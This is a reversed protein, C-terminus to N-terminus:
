MNSKCYDRIAKLDQYTIIGANASTSTSPSTTTTTTLTAAQTKGNVPKCVNKHGAFWDETQCEVSCYGVQHCRGCTKTEVPSMGVLVQTSSEFPKAHWPVRNVNGRACKDNSCKVDKQITRKEYFPDILAMVNLLIMQEVAKPDTDFKCVDCKVVKGSSHKRCFKVFAKTVLSQKVDRSAFKHLDILKYSENYIPHTCAGLEIMRKALALMNQGIARHLVGMGSTSIQGDGTFHAGQNLLYLATQERSNHVAMRFATLEALKTKHNLRKKFNKACSLAQCIQTSELDTHKVTRMTFMTDISSHLPTAGLANRQIKAGYQLLVPICSISAFSSATYHLMTNGHTDKTNANVKSELIIRVLEPDQYLTVRHAPCVGEFGPILADAKFQLLIKVCALRRSQQVKADVNTLATSLMAMLPTNQKVDRINVSEPWRGLTMELAEANLFRSCEHVMWSLATNTEENFIRPQEKQMHPHAFVETWTSIKIASPYQMFMGVCQKVILSHLTQKTCLGIAMGCEFCMPVRTKLEEPKGYASLGCRACCTQVQEIPVHFPRTNVFTVTIELPDPSLSLLELNMKLDQDAWTDFSSVSEHAIIYPDHANTDVTARSTPVSSTANAETITTSLATLVSDKREM